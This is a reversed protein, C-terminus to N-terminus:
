EKTPDYDRKKGNVKHLLAQTVRYSGDAEIVLYDFDLTRGFQDKFDACSVRYPGKEKVGDHLYDFTLRLMRGEVSDYYHTVGNITHQDIYRQMASQARQNPDDTNAEHGANHQCGGLALATVTMVAFTLSKSPTNTM